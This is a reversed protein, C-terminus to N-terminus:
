FLLFLFVSPTYDYFPRQQAMFKYKQQKRCTAAHQITRGTLSDETLNIDHEALPSM